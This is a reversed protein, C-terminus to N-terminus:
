GPGPRPPATPTRASGPTGVTTEFSARTALPPLRLRWGPHILNPDRLTGGGPLPGTNLDYIDEWLLADGLHKEALLWLSDGPKVVVWGSAGIEAEAWGAASSGEAAVAADPVAIISEPRARMGPGSSAVPVPPPDQTTGGGSAMAGVAVPANPSQVAGQSDQGPVPAAAPIPLAVSPQSATASVPEAALMEAPLPHPSPSSELPAGLTPVAVEQMSAPSAPPSRPDLPASSAAPIALPALIPATSEPVSVPAPAAPPISPMTSTGLPLALIPAHPATATASTPAAAAPSPAALPSPGTAAGASVTPPSDGTEGSVSGESTVPVSIGAFSPTAALVPQTLLGLTGAATLVIAVLRVVLPQMGFASLPLPRATRGRCAAVVEAAFSLAIQSWWIWVVVAVVRIAVGSPLVGSEVAAVVSSWAPLSSPLPNGVLRVLCLPVGILFTGLVACAAVGSLVAHIKRGNM